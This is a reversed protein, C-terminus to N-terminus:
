TFTEATSADSVYGQIEPDSFGLEAMFSLERMSKLSATAEGSYFREILKETGDSPGAANHTLLASARYSDAYTRPEPSLESLRKCTDRLANVEMMLDFVLNRLVKARPDSQSRLGLDQDRFLTRLIERSQM